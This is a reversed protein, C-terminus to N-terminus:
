NSICFTHGLTLCAMQKVPNLCGRRNLGRLQYSFFLACSFIHSLAASSPDTRKPCSPVHLRHRTHIVVDLRHHATFLSIFLALAAFMSLKQSDILECALTIPGPAAGCLRMVKNLSPPPFWVFPQLASKLLQSLSLIILKHFFVQVSEQEMEKTAMEHNLLHTKTKWKWCYVLNRQDLCARLPQKEKM